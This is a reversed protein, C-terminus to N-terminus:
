SMVAYIPSPVTPYARYIHGFVSGAYAYVEQDSYGDVPLGTTEDYLFDLIATEVADRTAEKEKWRDIRLKESKLHELLEGAVRKVRKIESPKLDPKKLIDFVALTEEDLGERVHRNEEESLDEIFRMLEEFTKEIVARDKERNYEEIVQEYHQQLDTRLPNQALMRELKQEIAFKLCQVTTRKRPSRQFERRLRDFDIASIDARLTDAATWLRKEIAEINELQAM